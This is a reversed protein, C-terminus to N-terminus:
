FQFYIFASKGVLGFIFIALIETYVFGLKIFYNQKDMFQFLSEGKYELYNSIFILFVGITMILIDIPTLGIMNVADNFSRYNIPNALAHKLIAIYNRTGGSCAVSLGICILLITRVRRFWRWSRCGTNIHLIEVSKAFIPQCLDSGILLICPIFGSAIFYYGTGGHWLGIFFWLTIMSIYFPIKRGYKKGLKSKAFKGIAQVFRSKQIPYMLYDKFWKGLTIHWRQWFEQITESFFPANFNEPLKIGFLMSAGMIIDMSGSFDTYLRVAYCLTAATIGVLSYDTSNGYVATVAIAFRESIVLKKFYGWAMRCLGLMFYDADFEKRKIIQPNMEGFRTLPGSILQPFYFIFLFVNAINKEAKTNTWFVDILYGIASLSYYSIGIIFGFDAWSFDGHLNFIKNVLTLINYAYKFIFLMSVISLISCLLALGRRLGKSKQIALAGLYAAIGIFLILSVLKISSVPSIRIYFAISALMLIYKQLPKFLYFPILTMILFVFFNFSTLAM